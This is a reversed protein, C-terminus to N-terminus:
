SHRAQACAPRYYLRALGIGVGKGILEYAKTYYFPNQGISVFPGGCM